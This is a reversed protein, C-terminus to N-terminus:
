ATQTSRMSKRAELFRQDLSRTFLRRFFKFM